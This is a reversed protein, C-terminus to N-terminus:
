REKASIIVESNLHTIKWYCKHKEHGLELIPGSQQETRSNMDGFLSPLHEYIHLLVSPLHKKFHSKSRLRNIEWFVSQSTDQDSHILFWLLFLCNISPLKKVKRGLTYYYSLLSILYIWNQFLAYNELEPLFYVSFCIVIFFDVHSPTNQSLILYGTFFTRLKSRSSIKCKSLIFWIVYLQQIKHNGVQKGLWFGTIKIIYSEYEQSFINKRFQGWSVM